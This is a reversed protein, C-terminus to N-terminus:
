KNKNQQAENYIEACLGNTPRYSKNTEETRNKEREKESHCLLIMLYYYELYNLTYVAAHRPAATFCLYIDKLKFCTKNKTTIPLHITEM